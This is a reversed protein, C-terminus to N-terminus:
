FTTVVDVVNYNHPMGDAVFPLLMLWISILFFTTVVDVVNYNHPMGNAVPPLLM